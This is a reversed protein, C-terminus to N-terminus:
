SLVVQHGDPSSTLCLSLRNDRELLEQVGGGMLKKRIASGLLERGFVEAQFASAM